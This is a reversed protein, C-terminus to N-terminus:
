GAYLAGNVTDHSAGTASALSNPLGAYRLLACLAVLAGEKFDTVGAPTQFDFTWKDSRYTRLSELLYRNHAGGGTVLVPMSTNDPGSRWHPTLEEYIAVILYDVFTRLKDATDGPFDRIVPWLTEVVWQNSLSKPCPQSHFPLEDIRRWLEPLHKGSRALTGDQDYDQGEQRALRDMIQCCGSLDGALFNGDPQRISFNVIGGLNLFADYEPFLYRDAVPALPAGQGGAAIDASRLDTIVPLGIAGALAAGEGLQLTYGAAPEHFVTHGHYGVLSPAGSTFESLFKAAQAGVWGGLEANLQQLDRASLKTSSVLRERWTDPYALTTAKDLSWNGIPDARHADFEFTCVALDVGDLSSGSMIGLVTHRTHPM